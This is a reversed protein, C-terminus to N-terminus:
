EGGALLEVTVPSWDNGIVDVNQNKLLDVAAEAWESTFATADPDATLVDEAVAIDVTQDWLGQDMVGAGGPSPWILNNIENLQWAQHSTGLTPGNNLVVDVCSDANDRCWAWGKVSAAIFRTTIDQYDADSALRAGDAWIADQLMATGEDNWDIVTLDDATYLEGTEDNITELVQAYENYIMAQAADIDGSLLGTMDFSQQVIEFDTGPELDNVRSGALLEFENGFGWSGIKKGAFDAPSSIGSDAFSVQLTGSRQFVQAVNVVDIGGERSALVRPVWSIAFDAVGSALQQQPVIDFGGEAITVDLCFEDYIGEDEAAYYGAFQAQAFWQLQLTVADSGTCDVAGDDSDGSSDDAAAATTATAEAPADDSGCASALLALAALLGILTRLTRTM